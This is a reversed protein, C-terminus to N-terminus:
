NMLIKTLQTKSLKSGVHERTIKETQRLEINTKLQTKVKIFLPIVRQSQVSHM